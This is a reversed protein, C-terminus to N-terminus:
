DHISEKIKNKISNMADIWGQEYAERLLDTAKDFGGADDGWLLFTEETM